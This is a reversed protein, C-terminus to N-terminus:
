NRRSTTSSTQRFDQNQEMIDAMEKERGKIAIGIWKNSDFNNVCNRLSKHLESIDFTVQLLTPDIMFGLGMSTLIDAKVVPIVVSSYRDAYGIVYLKTYGRPLTEGSLPAIPDSDAEMIFKSLDEIEDDLEHLKWNYAGRNNLRLWHNLKLADRLALAKDLNAQVEELKIRELPSSPSIPPVEPIKELIYYNGYEDQRIKPPVKVTFVGGPVVGAPVV